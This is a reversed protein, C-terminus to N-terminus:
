HSTAAATVTAGAGDTTRAELQFREFAHLADEVRRKWDHSGGRGVRNWRQVLLKRRQRDTKLDLGAVIRDGILVPCVFYGYVRKDKPVYAEFRYDYDFFLRLRRRQIILPDFPSLIHVPEGVPAPLADLTEPRVWHPGTAGEVQVPILQRRRVRTEVLRRMAPKRPADLHCISDLSV